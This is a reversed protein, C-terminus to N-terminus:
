KERNHSHLSLLHPSNVEHGVLVHLGRLSSSSSSFSSPSASLSPNDLILLIKFSNLHDWNFETRNNNMTSKILKVHDFAELSLHQKNLIMFYVESWALFDLYKSSFLSYTSYYNYAIQAGNFNVNRAIYSLGKSGRDSVRCTSGFFNSILEM